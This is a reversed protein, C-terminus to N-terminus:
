LSTDCIKQMQQKVPSAPDWTVKSRASMSPTEQKIPQKNVVHPRRHLLKFASQNRWLFVHVKLDPDVEGGGDAGMGNVRNSIVM